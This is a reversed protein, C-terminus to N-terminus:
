FPKKKVTFHKRVLSNGGCMQLAFHTVAAQSSIINKHAVSYTYLTARCSKGKIIIELLKRMNLTINFTDKLSTDSCAYQKQLPTLLLFVNKQKITWLLLLIVSYCNLINKKFYQTDEDKTCFSNIISVAFHKDGWFIFYFFAACRM